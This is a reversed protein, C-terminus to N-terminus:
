LNEPKRQGSHPLLSIPKYFPFREFEKTNYLKNEQGEVVLKELVSAPTMFNLMLPVRHSTFELTDKM